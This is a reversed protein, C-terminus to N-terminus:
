LRRLRQNYPCSLSRCWGDPLDPEVCRIPVPRPWAGPVLLRRRAPRRVGDDSRVAFDATGIQAALQGTPQARCVIREADGTKVKLRTERQWGGQSREVGKGRPSQLITTVQEGLEIGPLNPLDIKLLALETEPDTGVIEPAAVRGDALQVRIQVNTLKALSANMKDIVDLKAEIEPNM